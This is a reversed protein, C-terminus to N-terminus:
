NIIVSRTERHLPRSLFIDNASRQNTLLSVAETHGSIILRLGGCGHNITKAKRFRVRFGSLFHDCKNVGSDSGSKIVSQRNRHCRLHRREKEKLKNKISVLDVKM